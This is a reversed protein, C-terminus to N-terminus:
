EIKEVKTVNVNVSIEDNHQLKFLKLTDWCNFLFVGGKNISRCLIYWEQYDKILKQTDEDYESIQISGDRVKAALGADLGVSNAEQMYRDYAQQQLAIEQNVKTIEDATAGLKTKLAKYTSEATKKLRDIAREIRDIAIKIWDFAEIKNDSSDSSSSSTKSSSNDSSSEPLVSNYKKNNATGYAGGNTGDKFAPISGRLHYGSNKIRKTESATYVKDGPKLNVIEAGNTGVLYARNGSQVLEEGEEGVLSAGGPAGDTGKAYGDFGFWSKVDNVVQKASGVVDITVSISKGNLGNLTNTLTQVASTVGDVENETSTFTMNNIYNLVDEVAVIGDSGGLQSTFKVSDVEGLKEVLNKAQENTFGIDKMLNALQKYDIEITTGNNAALGLNELSGVLTDVEMEADIFTVNGLEKLNDLIGEIEKDSKGLNALQKVLSDLNIAKKGSVESVIGIEEIAELVEDIDYFNIDGFMSIAELCSLVAERSLNMKDAIADINEYDIDIKYSGDSLKSIEGILEGADNLVQGNESLEYLKDLFGFGGSDSDSFIDANQKMADYIKEIDYGFEKLKDSGFIYESAAWFANSNTKGETFQQNLTEYAETLSKFNTDKEDYSMAKDYKDKAVSVEDFADSMGNLANNLKLADDTILALGDNGDAINEFIFALFEADMGDQKLIASLEDSEEALKEIEKSSIKGLTKKMDLLATKTESFSESNWLSSIKNRIPISEANKKYDNLVYQWDALTYKATDTDCYITYVLEKDENSLKDIWGNFGDIKTEALNDGDVSDSFAQKIKTISDAIGGADINKGNFALAVRELSETTNDAIFGIKILNNIFDEYKSDQLNEATVNGQEGLEKLPSVVDAFDGDILSNFVTSGENKLVLLQNNFDRIYDLWSNVKKDDDTQPDQIYDIGKAAESFDNGKETLYDWIKDQSKVLKERQSIYSADTLNEAYEEDLKAIQKQYKKYASIQQNIYETESAVQYTAQGQSGIFSFFRGLIGLKFVDTGGTLKSYENSDYLDKDMVKVFDANAESNKNDLLIKKLAITRKLEANTAKLNELEEREVFTLTGQAELTEIKAQTTEFEDNLSSLESELDSCESKVEELKDRLNEEYHVWESIKQIAYTVAASIAVNVAASALQLAITAVKAKVLAGVYGGITAKGAKLGSLYKGLVSNSKGVSDVFDGQNLGCNTVGDATEGLSTNYENLLTKVNKLSKVQALHTIELAKQEKTFTQIGLINVENNKAFNQAALSATTMTRNYAEQQPINNNIEARYNILCQRDNNLLTSFSDDFAIGQTSQLIEKISKATQSFINTIKHGFTKSEDEITSFIM